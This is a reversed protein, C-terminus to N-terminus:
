RLRIGAFTKISLSEVRSTCARLHLARSTSDARVDSQVRIKHSLITISYCLWGRTVHILCSLETTEHILRTLQGDSNYIYRCWVRLVRMLLIWRRDVGGIVTVDVSAKHLGEVTRHSRTLGGNLRVCVRSNNRTVFFGRFASSIEVTRECNNLRNSSVVAMRWGIRRERRSLNRTLYLPFTTSPIADHTTSDRKNVGSESERKDKSEM